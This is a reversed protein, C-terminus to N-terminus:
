QFLFVVTVNVCFSKFGLKLIYIFNYKLKTDKKPMLIDNAKVHIKFHLNKFM